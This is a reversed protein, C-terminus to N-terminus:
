VMWSSRDMMIGVFDDTQLDYTTKLHAALRDSEADLAEYTWSQEGFTLATAKPTKAVQARFLDIVTQDKPYDKSYDNFATLLQSQEALSLIDLQGIPQDANAVVAELLTEFHQVMQEIRQEEFLQCYQIGFELGAESEEINFTLEFQANEEEFAVTSLALDGLEINNAEPTNQMSFLIQFLPSRKLDREAVVRDVIREFPVEQHAYADLTTQKVQKLLELFSPNGSLDSRMALTNIFFGVLPELATQSRNAVPTGVCIDNQGSYKQLLVKFATLLLMFLTVGEKQALVKLEEKLTAKITHNLIKGKTATVTNRTHDMPLQLPTVDALQTEWYALQDALWEGDLHERQWLAYDAYQIPLAAIQPARQELLARYIETLEEILITMSWGDAAVHHITFILLHTQEETQLLHARLLHDRSLDFPRNIEKELVAQEDGEFDALSTYGMTWNNEPLILQHAKGDTEAFVTRTVEHRNVITQLAQKLKEVELTGELKLVAPMHYHLSGELQDIFWLREQAFSLPILKPREVAQISPLSSGQVLTDLHNALGAITPQVFLAMMPMEIGLEKRVAAIMRAALLSHGGLDFFNHRTGVKEIQLLNQWITALAEETKTQPARFDGKLLEATNPDPLAKKDIKGNVTMPMEPLLLLQSPVMYEPLQESLYTQLISKDITGETVVYAVLRKRELDEGKALVVCQRVQPAQQLVAEVEELEIRFGRIKVQQDVRGIFEIQGNPLWRALDGTKYVRVSTESLHLEVFKERSLAPRNLYGRALGNGAICLQGVVGMPVLSDYEDLIYVQGNAIPRGIPVNTESEGSWQEGKPVKYMTACISTETPGYANIYTGYQLFSVAKEYVAAEGATVLTKLVALRNIDLQNLYAPPITAVQIRHEELYAMFQEPNARLTKNVVYLSAGACLATFIESVSADFSFSAFQLCHDGAEIDFADIQAFVTNKIGAHEIMVGKPRGTSGSTYIVYALQDITVPSSLNSKAFNSQQTEFDALLAADIVLQCQSDTIMYNIRENPYAPDIPLYAAGTKLVALIAVIMAASRELQIGLLDGSQISQENVLWNALQNAQENLEQYSLRRDEFVVATQTPCKQAWEEFLGIITAEAPFDAATDNLELLLHKQEVASLMSVQHISQGPDSVLQNLLLQFHNILRKITADAFIQNYKIEFELTGNTEEVNFILEFQATEPGFAQSDLQLNGLELVDAEPVNQLVFLTQFLPTRQLDREKAVRSVVREFPVDQHAYAALLDERVQMLFDVFRPNGELNSRLALMNLFFGILPETDRHTRNAIPTGVCIDTQGSYRHVLVNFAAVLTMFLTADYRLSLNELAEITEENM